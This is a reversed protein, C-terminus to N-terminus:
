QVVIAHGTEVQIERIRGGEDMIVADFFQPNDVPFLLFSFVNEPLERLGNEPFWITDPLGVVINEDPSIM